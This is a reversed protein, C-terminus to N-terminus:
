EAFCNPEPCQFLVGSGQERCPSRFLSSSVPLTLMKEGLSVRPAAAVSFIVQNTDSQPEDPLFCIENETFTDPEKSQTSYQLTFYSARFLGNENRLVCRGNLCFPM